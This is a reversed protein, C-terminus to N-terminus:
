FIKWKEPDNGPNDETAVFISGKPYFNGNFTAANLSKYTWYAAANPNPFVDDVATFDDQPIWANESPPSPSTSCFCSRPRARM